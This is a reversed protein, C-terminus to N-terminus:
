RLLIYQEYKILLEKKKGRSYKIRTNDTLRITKDIDVVYALNVIYSRHTRIFGHDCLKREIESMSSRVLYKYEKVHVECYKDSAKIYKINSKREWNGKALEVLNDKLVIKDYVGRLCDFLHENKFDKPLLACVNKDLIIYPLENGEVFLVVLCDRDQKDLVECITESSMRNCEQKNYMFVLDIKENSSVLENASKAELIEVQISKDYFFTELTNLIKKKINNDIDCIAIVM